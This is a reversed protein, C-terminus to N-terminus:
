RKSRKLYNSMKWYKRRASVIMGRFIEGQGGCGEEQKQRDGKM